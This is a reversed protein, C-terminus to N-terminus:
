RGFLYPMGFSSPRGFYRRRIERRPADYSRTKAVPTARAPRRKAIKAKVPAVEDPGASAQEVKADEAKAQEATSVLFDDGEPLIASYESRDAVILTSGPTLRPAISRRVADPIDIRDLAAAADGGELSVAM